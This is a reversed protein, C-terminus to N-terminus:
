SEWAHTRIYQLIARYGAETLHIGDGSEYAAKLFADADRLVSQTDLYRVNEYKGTLDKAWSNVQDIKLNLEKPTLSTWATENGAVPFVSQLIIKTSPSATQIAEILKGYSGKYIGETFTHAGNLGITLVMYEPQQQAAAEAITMETGTEPYVIKLSTVSSSLMLTGNQPCWVQMTDTGGPLVGRSIMHYTTSDGVFIIKKLYAEGKDATEKLVNDPATNAEVDIFPPPETNDSNGDVQGFGGSIRFAAMTCISTLSVFLFILALAPFLLNRSNM